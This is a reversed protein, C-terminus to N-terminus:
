TSTRRGLRKATLPAACSVCRISEPRAMLREIGISQECSVCRGFGDDEILTLARDLDALRARADTALSRVQAREFATTADPDHEDDPVEQVLVQLLETHTSDLEAVQKALRNRNVVLMRRLAQIESDSLLDEGSM